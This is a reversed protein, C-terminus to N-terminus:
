SSSNTTQPTSLKQIWSRNTSWHMNLMDLKCMEFRPQQMNRGVQCLKVSAMWTTKGLLRGKKQSDNKFVGYLCQEVDPDSPRNKVAFSSRPKTVNTFHRAAPTRRRTPTGLRLALSTMFSPKRSPTVPRPHSPYIPQLSWEYCVVPGGRYTAPLFCQFV